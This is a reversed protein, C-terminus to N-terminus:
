VLTAEEAGGAELASAQKSVMLRSLRLSGTLVRWAHWFTCGVVSPPSNFTNNGKNSIKVLERKYNACYELTGRALVATWYFTGKNFGVKTFTIM